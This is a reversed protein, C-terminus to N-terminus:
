AKYLDMQAKVDEFSTEGFLEKNERMVTYVRSLAQSAAMTERMREDATMDKEVANRLARQRAKKVRSILSGKRSPSERPDELVHLDAPSLYKALDEKPFEGLMAEEGRLEALHELVQQGPRDPDLPIYKSTAPVRAADEEANNPVFECEDDPSIEFNSEALEDNNKEEEEHLVKRSQPINRSPGTWWWAAIVAGFSVALTGWYVSPVQQLMVELYGGPGLGSVDELGIQALLSVIFGVMLLDLVSVLTLIVNDRSKSLV